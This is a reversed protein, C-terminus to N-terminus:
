ALVEPGVPKYTTRGVNRFLDAAQLFSESHGAYFWGDAALLPRMRALVRYQTPRDFYIMVNRCFIASLNGPVRYHADLLNLPAFDILARLEPRVRCQGDMAGTGRQFFRKRREPELQAIRELPYVGTRATDLVNTDVDTALIRVPPKLTDFAECATMAISYPEEGTSAASCWITHTAARSTRLVGALHAFHHPERFLATLNTTLANTFAQWEDADDEAQLKDLYGGFSELNLARLRRVLRSYVMDRKSDTLAIGARAHILACVRRFDREEFAFERAAAHALAPEAM